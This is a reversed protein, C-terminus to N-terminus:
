PRAHPLARRSAIMDLLAHTFAEPDNRTTIGHMEVMWVAGINTSSGFVLANVPRRGETFHFAIRAATIWRQTAGAQRAMHDVIHFLEASPVMGTIRFGPLAGFRGKVYGPLLREIPEYPHPVTGDPHPVGSLPDAFDPISPDGMFLTTEGSPSTATALQHVLTGRRLLWARNDWGRPMAIAFAREAEDVVTEWAGPALAIRPPVEYM